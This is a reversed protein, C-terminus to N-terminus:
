REDLRIPANVIFHFHTEPNRGNYVNFQFRLPDNTPLVLLTDGDGNEASEFYWGPGKFNFRRTESSLQKEAFEKTWVKVWDPTFENAAM